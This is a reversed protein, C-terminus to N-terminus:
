IMLTTIVGDSSSMLGINQQPQVMMLMKKNM